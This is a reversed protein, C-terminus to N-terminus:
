ERIKKLLAYKGNNAKLRYTHVDQVINERNVIVRLADYDPLTLKVSHEGVSISRIALTWKKLKFLERTSIGM